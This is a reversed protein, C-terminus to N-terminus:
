QGGGTRMEHSIGDKQLGLNCDLTM